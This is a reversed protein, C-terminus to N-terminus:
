NDESTLPSHGLLKTAEDLSGPRHEPHKSGEEEMAEQATQGSSPRVLIVLPQHEESGLLFGAIPDGADDQHPYELEEDEPEEEPIETEETTESEETEETFDDNGEDEDPTINDDTQQVEDEVADSDGSDDSPGDVTTLSLDEPSGGSVEFFGLPPEIGPIVLKILKTKGEQPRFHIPVAAFARKQEKVIDDKVAQANVPEDDM